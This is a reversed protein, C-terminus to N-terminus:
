SKGGPSLQELGTFFDKFQIEFFMGLVVPLEGIYVAWWREQTQRSIMSWGGEANKVTLCKGLLEFLKEHDDKSSRSIAHPAYAALNNEDMDLIQIGLVQMLLAELAIWDTLLLRSCRYTHEGAKREVYPLDIIQEAM